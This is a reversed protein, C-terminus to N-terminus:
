FNNHKKMQKIHLRKEKITLIGAYISVMGALAGILWAINYSTVYGAVCSTISWFASGISLWLNNHNHEM